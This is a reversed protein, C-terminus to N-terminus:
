ASGRLAKRFVVLVVGFMSLMSLVIRVATVGVPTGATAQAAVPVAEVPAPAM